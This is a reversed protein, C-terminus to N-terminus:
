PKSTAAKGLGICIESWGKGRSGSIRYGGRPNSLARVTEGVGNVEDEDGSNDTCM